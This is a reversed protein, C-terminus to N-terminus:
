FAGVKKRGGAFHHNKELPDQQFLVEKHFVGLYSDIKDRHSYYNHDDCYYYLLLLM